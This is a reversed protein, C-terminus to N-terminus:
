SESAADLNNAIDQLIDACDIGEGMLEGMVSQLRNQAKRVKAALARKEATDYKKIDELEAKAQNVDEQVKALRQEHHWVRYQFFYMDEKFDGAKLASFKGFLYDAPLDTLSGEEKGDMYNPLKPKGAKKEKDNGEPAPTAENTAAPAEATATSM